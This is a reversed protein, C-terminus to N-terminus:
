PASLVRRFSFSRRVGAGPLSFSVGFSLCAALLYVSGSGWSEMPFVGKTM